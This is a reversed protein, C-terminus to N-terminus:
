SPPPLLQQLGKVLNELLVEMFNIKTDIPLYLDERSLCILTLVIPWPTKYNDRWLFMGSRFIATNQM